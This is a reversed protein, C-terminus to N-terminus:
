PSEEARRNALLQEFEEETLVAVGLSQAKGLKSGAKEGAVLYDTKKSVSSAARGGLSAILEEMEKRGRNPLAGTVVFTMGDLPKSTQELEEEINLGAARLREIMECNSSNAFFDRVSQAVIPGVEDTTELEESSAEALRDISGFSTALVRAVHAGVHFIGLSFLLCRLPRKKSEEFAKILNKASTEGMRELEKLKEFTLSYLDATDKVFGAEVLQDILSPGLGSIDMGDRHAFYKLRSKLQASCGANTCRYYVGDPDKAVPGKCEPCEAPPSIPLETGTRSETVVSIVKPIIEGAKEIVVEDYV